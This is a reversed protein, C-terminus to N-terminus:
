GYGCRQLPLEPLHRPQILHRRRARVAARDDHHLEREVEVDIDGFLFHLSCDVCRLGVQRDIERNRRNVALRIRRIRRYQRQSQGRVGNRQRLDFIQGVGTEGLLDRLKRTDTQDADTAALFRCYTNLHIRRSQGGVADIKFIYAAGQLRRAEVLGFPVKVARLLIVLDVGVVLKQGAAIKLIDDDGIVVAGGYHKGIDSRYDIADFVHLLRCPHIRSGSDDHVDLPLRAGVNDLDNIANLLQQRCQLAIQRCGKM